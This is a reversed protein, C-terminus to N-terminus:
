TSVLGWYVNRTIKGLLYDLVGIPQGFRESGNFRAEPM